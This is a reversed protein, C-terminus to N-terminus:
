ELIAGCNDSRCVEGIYNEDYYAKNCEPCRIALTLRNTQSM